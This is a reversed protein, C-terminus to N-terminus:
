FTVVARLCMTHLLHMCVCACLGKGMRGGEGERCECARVCMSVLITDRVHAHACKWLMYQEQELLAVQKFTCHRM